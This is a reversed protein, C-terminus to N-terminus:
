TAFGMIQQFRAALLPVLEKGTVELCVEPGPDPLATRTHAHFAVEAAASAILAQAPTLTTGQATTATAIAAASRHRRTLYGQAHMSPMACLLLLPRGRLVAADRPRTRARSPAPACCRSAGSRIARSCRRAASATSANGSLCPCRRRLPPPPLSAFDERRTLREGSPTASSCRLLGAHALGQMPLCRATLRRRSPGPGAHAPPTGHPSAQQLWARCPSAAHRSAIGAPALGQLPQRRATLRHRSSGPGSAIGVPSCHMDEGCSRHRAVASDAASGCVSSYAPWRSLHSRSLQPSESM